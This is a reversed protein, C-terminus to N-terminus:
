ATESDTRRPEPKTTRSMADHVRWSAFMVLVFLLLTYRDNM